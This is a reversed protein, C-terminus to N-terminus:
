SYCGGVSWHSFRIWFRWKVLQIWVADVEGRCIGHHNLLSAFSVCYRRIQSQDCQLWLCYLRRRVWANIVVSFMYSHWKSFIEHPIRDMASIVSLLPSCDTISSCTVFDFMVSSAIMCFFCFAVTFVRDVVIGVIYAFFCIGWIYYVPIARCCSILVHFWLDVCWRVKNCPIPLFPVLLVHPTVLIADTCLLYSLFAHWVVSSTFIHFYLFHLKNHSELHLCRVSMAVFRPVVLSLSALTALIAEVTRKLLWTLLLCWRKLSCYVMRHVSSLAASHSPRM